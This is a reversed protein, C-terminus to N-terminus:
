GLRLALSGRANRERSPVVLRRRLALHAGSRKHAGMDMHVGEGEARRRM